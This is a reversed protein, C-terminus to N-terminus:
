PHDVSQYNDFFTGEVEKQLDTVAPEGVMVAEGVVAAGM